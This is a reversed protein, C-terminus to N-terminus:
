IKQDTHTEHHKTPLSNGSQVFQGWTARICNSSISAKAVKPPNMGFM